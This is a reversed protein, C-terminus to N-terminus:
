IGEAVLLQDSALFTGVLTSLALVAIMLAKVGRPGADGHLWALFGALLAAGLLTANHAWPATLNLLGTPSAAVILAFTLVGATRTALRTVSFAILGATALSLLAPSIEWLIRHFSLGHTALGFWLSVWGGQTNM